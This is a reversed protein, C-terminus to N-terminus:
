RAFLRKDAADLYRKQTELMVDDFDEPWDGFAGADDLEGSRVTTRGDKGRQFWHLKVKDPAFKGEAVLTQVGLLLTSSHTEIVVRVGREAASVLVQALAFQARPHLHTEPQEVYVLQGPQAAHLAVLVPLTQSVGIGVDAINVRDEPRTPPVNALRGVQIEIEAANRRATGVGGALGLLRLDANLKALKDKSEAMWRSIVSATYKEFTGPYVPGIAAVPYTREPNGRLGPLHIARLISKKPEGKLGGHSSNGYATRAICIVELLCRRRRVMWRADVGYTKALDEKILKARPHYGTKIIEAETMGPWFTYTGSTGSETMSDVTFGVKHRRRFTLVFCDGGAMRMGVHFLEAPKKKSTRSLVQEALTFKVNPGNLLLPGPDYTAELTQKLLLLPQMMSSKGSSNAGALITLPRIEISQEDSISKFGAVKIEAIAAPEHDKERPSNSGKSM